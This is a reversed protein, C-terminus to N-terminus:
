RFRIPVIQSYGYPYQSQVNVLNAEFYLPDSEPVEDFVTFTATGGAGTVARVPTAGVPAGNISAQGFHLGSQGYIIQGLYVPIGAVHVPRDYTDLLQVSLTVPTGISVPRNVAQPSISLHWTAPVYSSTHSFAVGGAATLAVMQFGGAISPMAYFNPAAVKYVGTQGPSLESPGSVKQWFATLSGGEDASFLPSATGSSVNKVALTVRDVTALQGTTHIGIVSLDLPAPSALAFYGFGAVGLGAVALVRGGLRGFPVRRREPFSNAVMVFTPVALMVLYSGYSRSIFALPICPLVFLLRKLAPYAFVFAALAGLMAVAGILTFASMSGGGIHLFLSLSVFGQGAPVMKALLPTTIGTLWAVPSDVLYTLNVLLFTGVAVVAFKSAVAVAGRRSDGRALGENFVGVLLFPLVLWPTQKFGM